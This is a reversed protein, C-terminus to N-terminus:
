GFADLMEATLPDSRLLADGDVLERLADRAPGTQRGRRLALELDLAAVARAAEEERGARVVPSWERARLVTLRVWRGQTGPMPEYAWEGMPEGRADVLVELEAPM